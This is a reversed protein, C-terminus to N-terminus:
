TLKEMPTTPNGSATWIIWNIIAKKRWFVMKMSFNGSELRAVTRMISSLNLKDMRICSPGPVMSSAIRSLLADICDEKKLIISGLATWGEM